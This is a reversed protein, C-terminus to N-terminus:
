GARSSPTAAPQVIANRLGAVTSLVDATVADPAGVDVLAFELHEAMADFAEETISFGAHATALDRGTFMHPGGLVGSLFAIQHGRLRALSVGEFYPALLPDAVVRNYFVAVATRMVAHGGLEEYATM